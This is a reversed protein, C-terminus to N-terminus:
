TTVENKKMLQITGVWRVPSFLQEQLLSRIQAPSQYISLDVNSIVATTPTRFNARALDEAFALAAEKLLACHCPVSVAIQKALRAGAENALQVARDVAATHGAIVVQGIANYNAATVQEVQDSAQMCLVEVQEDTLGVIAAM